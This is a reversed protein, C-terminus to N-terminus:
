ILGFTILGKAELEGSWYDDNQKACVAFMEVLKDSCHEKLIEIIKDNDLSSDHLNAQLILFKQKIAKLLAEEFDIYEFEYGYKNHTDLVLQYWQVTSNM